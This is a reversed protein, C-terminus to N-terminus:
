ITEDLKERHSERSRQPTILESEDIEEIRISTPDEYLHAGIVRAHEDFPWIFAQRSTVHFILM